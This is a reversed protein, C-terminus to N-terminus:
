LTSLVEDVFSRAASSKQSGGIPTTTNTSAAKGLSVPAAQRVSDALKRTYSFIRSPDEAMASAVKERKDESLMGNRILYDVTDAAEKRVKEQYKKAVDLQDGAAKVFKVMNEVTKSPLSVSAAKQTSETSM